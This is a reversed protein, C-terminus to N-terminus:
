VQPKAARSLFMADGYSFFRYKQEIAHNYADRITQTGSFASVLMLLTSQPLHFNTILADVVGFEYPSRIFLRTDGSGAQMQWDDARQPNQAVSASELARLSTTGVAVVRRRDLRAQNIVDATAPPIEYWEEHMVHQNLQQTSVPLFTGAGVHLTVYAIKVGKDKVAQLLAEDFHLGATPAAVAGDRQAFVTQYRLADFDDAQHDIYPPLPLHGYESLVALMPASSRLHYFRGEKYLVTLETREGSENEILIVTGSSPAKSARIQAVCEHTSSVREVMVEVKGGSAKQGFLRANIVKTNNLVLVDGAQLYDLVDSFHADRLGDRVVLLRSATREVAPMQAILEPPLRYDFHDLTLDDAHTLTAPLATTFFNSM